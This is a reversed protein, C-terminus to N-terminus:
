AGSDASAAAEMEAVRLRPDLTIRERRVVRVEAYRPHAPNILVNRDHPMVLSPVRLALSRGENAWATGFDRTGAERGADGADRLLRVLGAPSLDEVADGHVEAVVLTREGFDAPTMHVLVELLALSPNASAYAVRVGRHHWRASAHRTGEGGFADFEDAQAWPRRHDDIRFIRM